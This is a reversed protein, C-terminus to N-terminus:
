LEEEETDPSRTACTVCLQCVGDDNEEEVWRMHRECFYGTCGRAMQGHMSGCAYALGRDIKASCGPHDCTASFAYGIPRGMSDTGCDAWGVARGRTSSHRGGCAIPM